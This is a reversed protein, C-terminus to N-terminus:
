KSRGYTCMRWKLSYDIYQSNSIIQMIFQVSFLLDIYQTTDLDTAKHQKSKFRIQICLFIYQLIVSYIYMAVRKLAGM